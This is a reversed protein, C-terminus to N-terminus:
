VRKKALRHYVAIQKRFTPYPRGSREPPEPLRKLRPCSHRSRRCPADMDYRRRKPSKGSTGILDHPMAGGQPYPYIRETRCATHGFAPISVSGDARRSDPDGSSCRECAAFDRFYLYAFNNEMCHRRVAEASVKRDQKGAINMRRCGKQGTQAEDECRASKYGEACM